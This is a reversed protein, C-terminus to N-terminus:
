MRIIVRLDANCVVGVICMICYYSWSWSSLFEFRNEGTKANAKETIM